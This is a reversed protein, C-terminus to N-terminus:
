RREVSFFYLKCVETSSHINSVNPVLNGAALSVLSWWKGCLALFIANDFTGRILTGGRGGFIVFEGMILWALLERRANLAGM